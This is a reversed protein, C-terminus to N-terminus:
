ESIIGFARGFRDFYLDIDYLPPNQLYAEYLKRTAKVLAINYGGEQKREGILAKYYTIKKGEENIMNCEYVGLLDM